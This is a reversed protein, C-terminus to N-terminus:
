IMQKILFHIISLAFGRCRRKYMICTRSICIFLLNTSNSFDISLQRVAPPQRQRLEAACSLLSPAYIDRHSPILSTHLKTLWLRSPQFTAATSKSSLAVRQMESSRRESLPPSTPLSLHLLPEQFSRVESIREAAVFAHTQKGHIVITAPQEEHAIKAPRTVCGAADLLNLRLRGPRGPRATSRGAQADLRLEENAAPRREESCTTTLM